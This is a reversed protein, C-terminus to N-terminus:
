IFANFDKEFMALSTEANSKNSHLNIDVIQREIGEEDTTQNFHLCFIIPVSKIYSIDIAFMDILESNPDDPPLSVLVFPRKDTRGIVSIPVRLVKNL